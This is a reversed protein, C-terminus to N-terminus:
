APGRHLPGARANSQMYKFTPTHPRKMENLHSSLHTGWKVLFSLLVHLQRNVALEDLCLRALGDEVGRKSGADEYRMQAAM